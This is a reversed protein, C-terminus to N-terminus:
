NQGFSYQQLQNLLGSDILMGRDHRKGEVSGYLNAILGDLAVVSQFKFANYRKHGNYFVRQHISPRSIADVTRDVFSWCNDLPVGTDYVINAFHELHQPALWNLQFTRLLHGWNNFWFDLMDNSNMCLQPVPLAFRYMIYQYRCPYAFRKLFISFAEVSM